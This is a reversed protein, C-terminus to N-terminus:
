ACDAKLHNQHTEPRNGTKGAVDSVPAKRKQDRDIYHGALAPRQNPNWAMVTGCSVYGAILCLTAAWGTKLV